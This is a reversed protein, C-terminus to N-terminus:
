HPVRDPYDNVVSRMERAIAHIGPQDEMGKRLQREGPFGGQRWNPNPPNDRLQPDKLLMWLADVRFGDVGKNLWFRMVDYM